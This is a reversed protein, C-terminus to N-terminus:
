LATTDAALFQDAGLRVNSLVEAGGARAFEEGVVGLWVWVFRGGVGVEQLVLHGTAGLGDVVGGCIWDPHAVVAVGHVSGFARPLKAQDVPCPVARGRAVLHLSHDETLGHAAVLEPQEGRDPFLVERRLLKLRVLLKGLIENAGTLDLHDDVLRNAVLVAIVSLSCSVFLVLPRLVSSSRRWHVFSMRRVCSPIIRRVVALRGNKKNATSAGSLRRRVM